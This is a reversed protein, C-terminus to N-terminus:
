TSGKPPFHDGPPLEIAEGTPIDSAAATARQADRLAKQQARREAFFQRLMAAAPEALVGGIVETHHNLRPEAFLNTVSGAAGTKPDPTAFVIRKFRAHMLAMACM